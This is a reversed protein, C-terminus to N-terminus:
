DEAESSEIGPPSDEEVGKASIEYNLHSLEKNVHKNNYEVDKGDHRTAHAMRSFGENTGGKNKIWDVSAM